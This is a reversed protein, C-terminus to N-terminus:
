VPVVFALPMTEITTGAVVLVYGYVTEAAFFVPVPEAVTVATADPAVTVTLVRVNVCVPVIASVFVLRLHAPCNTGFAATVIVPPGFAPAM